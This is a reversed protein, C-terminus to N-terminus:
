CDDFTIRDKRIKIKDRGEGKAVLSGSPTTKYFLGSEDANFVDSPVYDQIVSLLVTSVWTEAGELDAAKKNGHLKQSNINERKKLRELWSKTPVFDSNMQIALSQAKELLIPGNLRINESRAQHFWTVLDREM